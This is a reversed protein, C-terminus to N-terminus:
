YALFSGTLAFFLSNHAARGFFLVPNVNAGLFQLLNTSM